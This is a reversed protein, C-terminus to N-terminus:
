VEVARSLTRLAVRRCAVERMNRSFVLGHLQLGTDSERVSFIRRNCYNVLVTATVATRLNICVFEEYRQFGAITRAVREIPAQYLGLSVVRECRVNGHEVLIGVIINVIQQRVQLSQLSSPAERM